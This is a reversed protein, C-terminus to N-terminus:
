NDAKQSMKNTKSIASKIKKKAANKNKQNQDVKAISLL